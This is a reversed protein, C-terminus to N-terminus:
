SRFGTIMPVSTRMALKHPHHLMTFTAHYFYNFSDLQNEM